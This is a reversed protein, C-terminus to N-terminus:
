AAGAPTAFFQRAFSDLSTLKVGYLPATQSMDIATEFTEMARLMDPVGEPLLPVPQEFTVYNVPLDQGVTKSVTNVIDTWSYSAPGGIYVTQNLANPNDVIASAFAAVDQISVMSHKHDGKGVLTVPQGAQLPMGVVMGIWVEMFIGPALITYNMGSEKVNQAIIAKTKLVPNPSNLDGAQASTYIFHKVGASKAVDILTRTGNLDVGEVDFDRLTSAATTLVTDVGQCARELSTRDKLDGYVPQAGAQILAQASTARGQKALEESPSNQRVLIRVKKGKELLNRTILGGLIGTAGVILIM